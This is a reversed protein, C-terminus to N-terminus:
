ADPTRKQLRSSPRGRKVRPAAEMADPLRERLRREIAGADLQLRVGPSLPVLVHSQPLADLVRSAIAVADPLSFGARRALIRVLEIALMGDRTIRRQVGQRSREVGPVRHHSLLNDIWKVPSETALAAIRVDYTTQM